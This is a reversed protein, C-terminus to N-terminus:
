IKGELRLRRYQERHDARTLDLQGIDFSQKSQTTTNGTSGTGAPGASRFYPNQNVFESVLDDITYQEATDPNYRVEGDQNLVVVAGSDDLRVANKLLQAVHDPNLARAKSAAAQLAGDVKVKQLEARLTQVESDFRERSQKLIKDFEERKMLRDTEQREKLAKLERYEAIDIGDFKKQEAAIRRAVIANLEDQTFTKGNSVQSNETVTGQDAGTSVEVESVMNSDM